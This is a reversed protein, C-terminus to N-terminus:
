GGKYATPRIYVDEQYGNRELLRVTIAILEDVSYPLRIYLSRCSRHLREYHEGVRFLYLQRHRENWFARIGEFCGLGYNFAKTRFSLCVEREPLIKGQYFVYSAM